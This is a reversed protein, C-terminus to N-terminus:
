ILDDSKEFFFRNKIYKNKLLDFIDFVKAGNEQNIKSLLVFNNNMETKM